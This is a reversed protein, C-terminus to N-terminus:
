KRGRNTQDIANELEKEFEIDDLDGDVYRQKIQEVETSREEKTRQHDYRYLVVLLSSFVVVVTAPPAFSLGQIVVLIILLFGM